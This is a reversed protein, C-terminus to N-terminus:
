GLIRKRVEEEGCWDQKTCANVMSGDKFKMEVMWVVDGGDVSVVDGGDM